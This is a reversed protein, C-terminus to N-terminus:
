HRWTNLSCFNRHKEKLPLSAIVFFQLIKGKEEQAVMLETINPLEHAFM